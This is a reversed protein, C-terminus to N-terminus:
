DGRSNYLIGQDLYELDYGDGFTLCLMWFIVNEQEFEKLNQYLKNNKVMEHFTERIHEENNNHMRSVIKTLQDLGHQFNHKAVDEGFDRKVLSKLLREALMHEDFPTDM